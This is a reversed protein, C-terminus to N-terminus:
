DEVRRTSEADDASEKSPATAVVVQAPRLLKDHLRYGKKFVRSVHGSKVKDTPESSLAEHEAPDFPKGEAVVESVSARGLLTKLEAYIMEVGKVFSEHNDKNQLALEFNDAIGLFDRLLREAGYKVLESREKISNKRANEFDAMLYLYDKKAKELNAQLDPNEAEENEIIVESEDSPNKTDDAM